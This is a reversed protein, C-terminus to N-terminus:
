DSEGEHDLAYLRGVAMAEIVGWCDRQDHGLAVLRAVLLGIEGEICAQLAIDKAEQDRNPKPERQFDIM